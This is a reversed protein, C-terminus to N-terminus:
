RKLAKREQAIRKTLGEDGGACVTAAALEQEAKEPLDAKAYLAALKLHVLTLKKGQQVGYRWAAIAEATKSQGELIIGKLYWAELNDSDQDLVVNIHELAESQKSPNRILVKALWIRANLNAADREFARRFSKEAEPLNESYYLIKGRLVLVNVLSEDKKLIEDVEKLADASNRADFQGLAHEYKKQLEPDPKRSCVAFLM